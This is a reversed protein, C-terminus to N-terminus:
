TMIQHDALRSFFWNFFGVNKPKILNEQGGRGDQPKVLGSKTARTTSPSDGWNQNLGIKKM